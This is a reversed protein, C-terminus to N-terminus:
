SYGKNKWMAITMDSSINLETDNYRKAKAIVTNATGGDITFNGSVDTTTTNSGATITAGSIYTFGVSSSYTSSRIVDIVKGTVITM